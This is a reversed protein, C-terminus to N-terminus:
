ISGIKAFHDILKSEAEFMKQEFKQQKEKFDEYITGVRISEDSYDRKFANFEEHRVFRERLDAKM